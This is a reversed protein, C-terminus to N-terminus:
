TERIRSYRTRKAGHLLWEREEGARMDNSCTIGKM